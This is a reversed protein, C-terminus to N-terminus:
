RLAATHRKLKRILQDLPVPEQNRASMDRLIVTQEVFEKQGVIVTYRVGRAEADRLQASLSDSTLDHRVTIGNQRLADILM